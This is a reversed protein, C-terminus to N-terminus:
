DDEEARLQIAIRAIRASEDREYRQATEDSGNRYGELYTKDFASHKLRFSLLSWHWLRRLLNLILNLPVPYCISVRRSFDRWALGYGKPYREGELVEKAIKM